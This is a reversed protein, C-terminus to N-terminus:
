DFLELGRRSRSADGGRIEQSPQAVPAGGPRQQLREIVRVRIPGRLRRGGEAGEAIRVGDISQEPHEPM